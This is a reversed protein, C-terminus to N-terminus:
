PDISADNEIGAVGEAAGGEEGRGSVEGAKECVRGCGAGGGGHGVKGCAGEVRM